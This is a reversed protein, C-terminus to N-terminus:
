SSSAVGAVTSLYVGPIYVTVDLPTGCILGPFFAVKWQGVAMRNYICGLRLRVVLWGLVRVCKVAGLTVSVRM